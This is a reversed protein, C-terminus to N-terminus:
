DDGDFCFQDLTFICSGEPTSVTVECIYCGDQLTELPNVDGVPLGSEFWQYDLLANAPIVEQNFVTLVFDGNECYTDIFADLGILRLNLKATSDYGNVDAKSYFLDYTGSDDYPDGEYYFTTEGEPLCYVTDVAGEDPIPYADVTWLSDFVCGDQDEYSQQYDGAGNITLSGWSFPFEEDCFIEPDKDEPPIEYVEVDFCFDMASTDCGSFARVCISYTGPDVDTPIDITTNPFTSTITDGSWELVWYYGHAGIIDPEATLQLGNFGQCVSSPSASGGTLSESNFGPTEIGEAFTITYNCTAGNSGDIMLWYPQGVILGFAMLVMTGGPNTGPNCDVVNSNDWPCADLIACQLGTGNTCDDVHINIQVDPDTPVFLFYQPNNIITNNGCWNNCCTQPINLTEYCADVLCVFPADECMPTPLQDPPNCQSRLQTTFLLTVLFIGVRLSLGPKPSIM